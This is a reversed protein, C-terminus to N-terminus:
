NLFASIFRQFDHPAEKPMGTDSDTDSDMGFVANYLEDGEHATIIARLLDLLPMHREEVHRRCRMWLFGRWVIAQITSDWASVRYLFGLAKEVAYMTGVCANACGKRVGNLLYMDYTQTGDPDMTSRKQDFILVADRVNQLLMEEMAVVRPDVSSSALTM